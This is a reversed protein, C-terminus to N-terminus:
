PKKIAQTLGKQELYQWGQCYKDVENKFEIQDTNNPLHPLYNRALLIGKSKLAPLWRPLIGPLMIDTHILDFYNENIPFTKADGIRLIVNTINYKKFQERMKRSYDIKDTAWSNSIQAQGTDITHIKCTPNSLALTMASKGWGCGLDLITSGTSLISAYKHYLRMDEELLFVPIGSLTQIIQEAQM